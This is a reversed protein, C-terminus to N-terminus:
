VPVRGTLTMVLLIVLVVGVLTSPGYGWSGSYRGSPLTVWLALVLSILIIIELGMPLELAGATLSIGLYKLSNGQVTVGLM